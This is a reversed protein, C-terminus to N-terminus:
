MEDDLGFLINFNQIAQGSAGKILNDIVSFIILNNDKIHFNIDIFNTNAVDIIRPIDKRIRVYKSDCYYKNYISKIEDLTIEPVNLKTYLTTFMGQKLPLLYPVFVVDTKKGSFIFLKEDIEPKHRHKLINYPKFDESIECYILNEAAKRGAGSVGTKADIIINDEYIIGEKLLPYLPIIATTPYCGPNAILEANRIDDYNIEPIGYVAKKLNEKDKHEVNYYKEYDDASIFRYDASLDIIKINKSLLEAVYNFSVTHPLALFVADVKINLAEETNILRMDFVNTFSTHIESYKKGTYRNSTVYKISVNKNKVFHKILEYGTYGTSGLIGIKIMYIVM